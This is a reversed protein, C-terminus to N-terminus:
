LSLFYSRKLDLLIFICGIKCTSKTSCPFCKGTLFSEEPQSLGLGSKRKATIGLSYEKISFIWEKLKSHVESSSVDKDSFHSVYYFGDLLSM